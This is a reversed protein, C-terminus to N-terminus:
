ISKFTNQLCNSFGVVDKLGKLQMSVKVGQIKNGIKPVHKKRRKEAYNPSIRNRHTTSITQIETALIQLLNRINSNGCSFRVNPIEPM